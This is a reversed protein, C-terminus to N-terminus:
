GHTTLATNIEAIDSALRSAMEAASNRYVDLIAKESTGGQGTIGQIDKSYLIKGDAVRIVRTTANAQSKYLNYAKGDLVVQNAAYCDNLVLVLYSVEKKMGLAQIAQPDGSYVRMFEDGLLSGDYHSFDFTGSKLVNYVSDLIVPPQHPGSMSRELVFITATRSPPVYAFERTLGEFLYSFGGVTYVLTARIIQESNPSDVRAIACNAQGYDNTTVYGTLVGSGKVFEFHIPAGAVISREPGYTLMVSPQLGSPDGIEHVNATRQNHNEDMWKPDPDLSLASAVSTLAARAKEVADLMERSPSATKEKESLVAVLQQIGESFSQHDIKDMGSSLFGRVRAEADGPSPTPKAQAPAESPKIQEPTGVPKRTEVTACSALIMALTICCANTLGRAHFM